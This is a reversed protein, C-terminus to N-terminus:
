TNLSNEEPAPQVEGIENNLIKRNYEHEIPEIQDQAKESLREYLENCGYWFRNVADWRFGANKVDDKFEFPVDYYIIHCEDLNNWEHHDETYWLKREVEWRLSKYQKKYENKKDFPILVYKELKIDDKLNYTPLKYLMKPTSQSKKNSVSNRYFM